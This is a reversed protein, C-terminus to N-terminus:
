EWHGIKLEQECFNIWEPTVNTWIRARNAHSHKTVTYNDHVLVYDDDSLEEPDSEDKDDEYYLDENWEPFRRCEKLLV